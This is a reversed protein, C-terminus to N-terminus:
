PATCFAPVKNNIPPLSMIYNGIDLADADTLGGYGGLPGFPMPPCLGADGKDHGFHLVNAVDEPKWGNLGTTPDSTLNASYIQAPFPPVPLPLDAANWIVGGQFPKSMDILGNPKTQGDPYSEHPTHCDLCIGATTALYRGRLASDQNPYSPMPMPIKTTDLPPAATALPSWPPDNPAVDHEVAPITRLYAVIADADEAKLNHFEWYPMVPSLIEGNPRVGNMFMDKIQQDTRNKLGTADNTLNRTNLCGVPAGADGGDGGTIGADLPQGEFCNVGSMYRAKDIGLPGNRPTHCEPCAAVNDVLYKGRAVPDVAVDAGADMSGGTDGGTEAGAETPTATSDDGGCALFLASGALASLPLLVLAVARIRM